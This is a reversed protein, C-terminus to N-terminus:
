QIVIWMPPVVMAKDIVVLVYVGPPASAPIHTQLSRDTAIYPLRYIGSRGSVDVMALYANPGLPRGVHAIVRNGARVVNPVCAVNHNTRTEEQLVDSTPREARLIRGSSTVAIFTNSSPIAPVINAPVPSELTDVWWTEGGDTTGTLRGQSSGIVCLSASHAAIAYQTQPRDSSERVITWNRGGDTSRSVRETSTTPHARGRVGWGNGYGDFDIWEFGTWSARYESWTQGLDESRFMDYSVNDFAPILLLSSDVCVGTRFTHRDFGQPTADVITWSAGSDITVAALMHSQELRLLTIVGCSSRHLDISLVTVTTDPFPVEDWTRGGDTSRIIRGSDGAAVVILANIADIRFLRRVLPRNTDSRELMVTDWTRGADTSRVIITQDHVSLPSGVAFCTASDPCAIARFPIDISHVLRWELPQGPSPTSWLIVSCAAILVGAM